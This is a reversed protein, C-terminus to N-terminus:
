NVAIICLGDIIEAIRRLIKESTSLLHMCKLEEKASQAHRDRSKLQMQSACDSGKRCATSCLLISLLEPLRWWLTSQHHFDDILGNRYLTSYSVSTPLVNDMNFEVHTILYM